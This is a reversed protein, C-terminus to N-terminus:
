NKTAYNIERFMENMLELLKDVNEPTAEIMHPERAGTYSIKFGTQPIVAALYEMYAMGNEDQAGLAASRDPRYVGILESTDIFPTCEERTYM